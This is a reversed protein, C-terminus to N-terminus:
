PGATTVGYREHEHRREEQEMRDLLDRHVRIHSLLRGDGASLFGKLVMTRQKHTLGGTVFQENTPIGAVLDPFKDLWAKLVTKAHEISVRNKIGIKMAFDGVRVTSWDGDFSLSNLMTLALENSAECAGIQKPYVTYVADTRYMVDLFNLQDVCWAKIGFHIAQVANEGSYTVWELLGAPRIAVFPREEGADLYEIDDQNSSHRGKTQRQGVSMEIPRACSMFDQVTHIPTNPMLFTEIFAKRCDENRLVVNSFAEKESDTLESGLNVNTTLAHTESLQEDLEYRGNLKVLLGLRELTRRHHYHSTPGLPQGNRGVLIREQNTLRVLDTARLRGPNERVLLLIERLARFNVWRMWLKM